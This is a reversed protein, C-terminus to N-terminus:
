RLEALHKTFPNSPKRGGNTPALMKGAEILEKRTTVGSEVANIAGQYCTGCLGCVKRTGPAIQVECGLCIGKAVKEDVNKQVSDTVRVRLKKVEYVSLIQECM